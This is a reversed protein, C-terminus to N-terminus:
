PRLNAPEAEVIRFRSREADNRTETAALDRLRATLTAVEAQDGSARLASILHFLATRDTPDFKLAL